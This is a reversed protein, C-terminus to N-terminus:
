RWNGGNATLIRNILLAVFFGAFGSASLTVAMTRGRYRSFWRTVATAAPIITGFDNNRGAGETVYSPLFSGEGGALGSVNLIYHPTLCHVGFSGSRDGRAQFSCMREDAVPKDTAKACGRLRLLFAPQRNEGSLGHQNGGWGTRPFRQRHKQNRNPGSLLGAIENELGCNWGRTRNQDIRVNWHIENARRM